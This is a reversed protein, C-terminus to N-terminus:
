FFIREPAAPYCSKCVQPTEQDCERCPYECFFNITVGSVIKDL